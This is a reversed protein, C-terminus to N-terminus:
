RAKRKTSIHGCHVCKIKDKGHGHKKDEMKLNIMERFGCVKCYIIKQKKIKGAVYMKNNCKKCKM